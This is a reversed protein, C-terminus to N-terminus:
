AVFSIRVPNLIEVPKDSDRDWGQGDDLAKLITRGKPMLVVWTRNNWRQIIVWGMHEAQNEYNMSASAIAKYDTMKPMNGKIDGEKKRNYLQSVYLTGGNAALLHLLRHWNSQPKVVRIRASM